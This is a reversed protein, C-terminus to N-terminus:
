CGRATATKEGSDANVQAEKEGNLLGAFNEFEKILQLPLQMHKEVARRIRIKAEVVIDDSAM